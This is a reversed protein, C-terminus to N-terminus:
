LALVKRLGTNIESLLEPSVIGIKGSIISKHITAIRSLRILSNKKLGTTSNAQALVSLEDKKELQTTIFALIVDNQSNEPALVLGPRLKTGRLNTFPFHALVFDGKKM